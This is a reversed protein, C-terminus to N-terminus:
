AGEGPVYCQLAELPHYQGTVPHDWTIEGQVAPRLAQFDSGSLPGDVRVVSVYRNEAILKAVRRYAEEFPDLPRAGFDRLRPFM